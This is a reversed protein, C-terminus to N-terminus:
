GELHLKFPKRLVRHRPRYALLAECGTGYLAHEVRARETPALAHFADLVRQVMWVTMPTTFREVPTGRIAAAHMSVGRPLEGATMPSTDAWDDFARVSHLILPVADTGILALLRRTGTACGDNPTWDTWGTPDPHNMREIYHCTHPATDRLLKSSVADLYLHAYLPGTLAYDALSPRGGLVFPQAAFIEELVALFDVTHAEIMPRTQDNIGFLGAAGQVAEGFRQAAREDGTIAVFDRLAYRAAEPYSWRYHLGVLILFEDVYLETLYAAIRQVPTPPLLPPDPFRADLRDLIDSSDQWTEDDPTVIVPIISLGTRPRIVTRYNNPTPLLELHPVRKARLAPRVKGSFYSVEAGYFRYVGDYAAM